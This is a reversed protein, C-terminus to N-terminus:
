RPRVGKLAAPEGPRGGRVSRYDPVGVCTFLMAELPAGLLDPIESDIFTMGTASAGLAYALLHLRGEVLGAALQAERYGIDDLTTMDAATIVVFAADRSLEQGLSVRCLEERLNGPRLVTELDPWRYLGPAVGAVDHVAVYHPLDTGRLAVTMSTHLLSAPLGRTADMRRQSGRALAVDEVSASASDPPVPVPAGTPWPAGLQSSRAARYADTVLPFELPKADVDGPAAPGAPTLAPATSGLAVVAVPFEHVGDAGILAAVEEDPFRSYLTPSVGASSAAALLQSLMTGLDWYIHRYGRERYRWGTRWPIGTVIVAPGGGTAPPAVRVLAHEAPDYWHVGDPLSVYVELPFRGGASGAARFPFTGWSRAMTRVVGASLYLIRSLHELTLPAPAVSADGALVSLTPAPCAPLDRSLPIRPLQPDYQKFFWPIKAFDNVELDQVIRPDDIPDTWERSPEYSTLRHLTRAIM